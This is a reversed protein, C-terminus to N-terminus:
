PQPELRYQIFGIGQERLTEAYRNDAAVIFFRADPEHSQYFRVQRILEGLSPLAAKVEFCLIKQDSHIALEVDQGPRDYWAALSAVGVSVYFDIFGVPGNYGMVPKEWVRRQIVPEPRIPLTFAAVKAQAKQRDEANYIEKIASQVQRNFATLEADTWSGRPFVPTILDQLNKDLWLMIADHKSSKLDEDGFAMRSQYTPKESM